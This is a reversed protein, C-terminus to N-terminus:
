RLRRVQSAPSNDWQPGRVWELDIFGAALMAESFAELRDEDPPDVWFARHVEKVKVEAEGVTWEPPVGFYLDLDAENASPIFCVKM